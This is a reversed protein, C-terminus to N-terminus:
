NALSLIHSSLIYKFNGELLRLHTSNIKRRATENIWFRFIKNVKSLSSFGVVYCFTWNDLYKRYLGWSDGEDHDGFEGSNRAIGKELLRRRAVAEKRAREEIDWLDNLGEEERRM